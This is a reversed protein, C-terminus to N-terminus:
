RNGKLFLTRDRQGSKGEFESWDIDEMKVILGYARSEHLLHVGEHDIKKLVWERQKIQRYVDNRLRLRKGPPISNCIRRARLHPHTQYKFANMKGKYDGGERTFDM